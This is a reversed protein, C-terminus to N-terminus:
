DIKSLFDGLVFSSVLAAFLRPSVQDFLVFKIALLGQGIAILDLLLSLCVVFKQSYRLLSDDICIKNDALVEFLLSFIVLLM